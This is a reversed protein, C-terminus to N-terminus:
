DLGKKKRGKKKKLFSFALNKWHEPSEYLEQSIGLLYLLTLLLPLFSLKLFLM